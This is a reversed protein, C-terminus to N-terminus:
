KMQKLYDQAPHDSPTEEPLKTTHFHHKYAIKKTTLVPEPKGADTVNSLTIGWFNFGVILLFLWYFLLDRGSAWPMRRLQIETGVLVTLGVTSGLLYMEQGFATFRHCFKSWVYAAIYAVLLSLLLIELSIAWVLLCSALGLGCLWAVIILLNTIEVVVQNEYPEDILSNKILNTITLYLWKIIRFLLGMVAVGNHHLQM